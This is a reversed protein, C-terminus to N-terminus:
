TPNADLDIQNGAADFKAVISDGDDDVTTILKNGTPAPVTMEDAETYAIGANDLGQKYNDIDAMTPAGQPRFFYADTYKDPTGPISEQRLFTSSFFGIKGDRSICVGPKGWYGNTPTIQSRHHFLREIPGSGDFPFRVIECRYLEWHDAPDHVHNAGIHISWYIYGDRHCSNASFHGDPGGGTPIWGPVGPYLKRVEGTDMDWRTLLNDHWSEVGIIYSGGDPGVCTDNHGTGPMSLRFTAVGPAGSATANVNYIHWERYVAVKLYKGCESLSADFFGTIGSYDLESVVRGQSFSYVCVTKDLKSTLAITDGDLSLGAEGSGIINSYPLSAMQQIDGTSISQQMIRAPNVNVMYILDPDNVDWWYDSPSSSGRLTRVRVGTAINFVMQAGGMEVLRVLTGDANSVPSHSYEVALGEKGMALADTLRTFKEGFTPCTMEEGAAPPYPQGYKDPWWDPPVYIGSDTKSM